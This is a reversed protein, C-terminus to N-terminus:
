PALTDSTSHPESSVSWAYEAPEYTPRLLIPPATPSRTGRAPLCARRGRGACSYRLHQPAGLFWTVFVRHTSTAPALTDSTSHPESNAPLTASWAPLSACSYRLHQPAGLEGHADEGVARPRRLLMPPATSSRPSPFRFLCPTGSSPALADSTSHLESFAEGGGLVLVTAIACPCRPQRPAELLRRLILLHVQDRRRLLMPAATSSRCRSVDAAVVTSLRPRLLM